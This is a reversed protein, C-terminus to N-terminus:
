YKYGLGASLYNTLQNTSGLDHNWSYEFTYSLTGTFLGASTSIQASVECGTQLTKEIVAQTLFRTWLGGPPNPYGGSPTFTPVSNVYGTDFVTGDGGGAIGESGNGHRIFRFFPTLDIFSLPRLLASVEIRDSDPELSTAMNQGDNTYNQYNVTDSDIHSYTYPTVMTYNLSLRELLPLHPTWSIGGQAALVLMTNFDLKILDNFAADDVYLMFDANIAKLFKVGVSLGVFSNDQYGVLGQSYFLISPFPVLYLPEFRNGWVVSEFMGLTLWELPYFELSHLSLFKNPQPSGSGDNNTASIDLLLSTYTFFSQRIVFSFQGAQPATPSLVISDGLFPGFSARLVGAQFYISDTGFAAGGEMSVRPTLGSAGLTAVSSDYVVDLDPRTYEPLLSNVQGNSAVGGLNASYSILPTVSGQLIVKLEYQQYINKIDTRIQADLSAHLSIEKGFDKLYETARQRADSDGSVQAQALLKEVLQVPYPRMPPLNRIIGQDQWLALDTYLRDNLDSVQQASLITATVLGLTMLFAVLITKRM